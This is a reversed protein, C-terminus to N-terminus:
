GAHITADLAGAFGVSLVLTPRYLAIVAESSRRAAEAGVGGCVVVLEDREFFVCRRGEYDREVRRCSKILASVERELAAIIAVKPMVM